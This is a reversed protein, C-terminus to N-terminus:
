TGQPFEQAQRRTIGLGFSSAAHRRVQAAAQRRQQGLPAHLAGGAELQGLQM